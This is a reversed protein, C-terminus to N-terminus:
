EEKKIPKLRARIGEEQLIERLTAEDFVTLNDLVVALDDLMASLERDSDNLAEAVSRLEAAIVRADAMTEPLEATSEDLRGTLTEVDALTTDLKALTGDVRELTGPLRESAARVNRLIIPVEQKVQPAIEAMENLNHLLTEAEAVLGGAEFEGERALDAMAAVIAAMDDPDIQGLLPGLATVMQDIEYPIATDVIRDGDELPPATESRPLLAVYKEGLVSRARVHAAVDKRADADRRIVLTAVCGRDEVRLKQVGGVRVGALRVDGDEVLGAADEFFAEVTVTDGLSKLAGVRFSMYLLAALAALLLCGVGLENRFRKM